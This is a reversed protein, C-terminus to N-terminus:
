IVQCFGIMNDITFIQHYRDIYYNDNYKNQKMSWVKRRLAYDKTCIHRFSFNNSLTHRFYEIRERGGYRKPSICIFFNTGQQTQKILYSLTDLNIEPLDLVNSFVHLKISNAESYLDNKRLEGIKKAVENIIIQELEHSSLAKKIYDIGRQLAINSPEILTIKTLPLNKGLSRYYSILACTDTAAGCGYSIIELKQHEFRSINLSDFASELKYYHQAGYLAIYTDVEADRQLIKRGHNISGIATSLSQFKSYYKTLCIEYIDKIYNFNPHFDLNVLNPRFLQSVM